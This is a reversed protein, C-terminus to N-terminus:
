GIWQLLLTTPDGILVLPLVRPVLVGAVANQPQGLCPGRWPGQPSCVNRWNRQPPPPEHRGRLTVVRHEGTPMEMTDTLLWVHRKAVEDVAMM